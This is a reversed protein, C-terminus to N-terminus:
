WDAGFSFYYQPKSYGGNNKVDWAIDIRLLGIPTFLKIGTGFGSVTPSTVTPDIYKKELEYKDWFEDQTDWAAGIDYFLHGFFGFIVSISILLIFGSKHLKVTKM